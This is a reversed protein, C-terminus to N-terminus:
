CMFVVCFVVTCPIIHLASNYFESDYQSTISITFPQQCTQLEYLDRVATVPFWSIILHTPIFEIVATYFPGNHDQVVQIEGAAPSLAAEEPGEEPPETGM